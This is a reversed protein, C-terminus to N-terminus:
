VISEHTHGYKKIDMLERAREKFHEMHEKRNRDPLKINLYGVFGIDEPLDYVGGIDSGKEVLVQGEIYREENDGNEAYPRESVLAWCIVPDCFLEGDNYSFFVAEWGECAEMIQIIKKM